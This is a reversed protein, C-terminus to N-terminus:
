RCNIGCQISLVHHTAAVMLISFGIVYDNLADAPSHSSVLEEEAFCPNMLQMSSLFAFM